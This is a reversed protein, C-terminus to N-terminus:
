RTASKGQKQHFMKAETKLPNKDLHHFRNVAGRALTSLIRPLDSAKWADAFAQVEHLRAALTYGEPEDPALSVDEFRVAGPMGIADSLVMSATEAFIKRADETSEARDIRDRFGPVVAQELKTFSIQHTM